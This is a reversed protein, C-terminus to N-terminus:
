KLVRRAEPEGFSIQSLLSDQEPPRQKQRKEADRLIERFKMYDIGIKAAFQRVTNSPLCVYLWVLLTDSDKDYLEPTWYSLNSYHGSVFVCEIEQGCSESLSISYKM